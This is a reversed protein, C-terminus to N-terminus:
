SIFCKALEETKKERFMRKLAEEKEESFNTGSLSSWISGEMEDWKKKFEKETLMHLKGTPFLLGYEYGTLHFAHALLLAPLFPIFKNYKKTTNIIARNSKSYLYRLITVQALTHAGNRGEIKVKYVKIKEKENSFKPKGEAKFYRPEVPYDAGSCEVTFPFIQVVKCIVNDGTISYRNGVGRILDGISFVEKNCGENSNTKVEIEVEQLDFEIGLSKFGELWYEIDKAKFFLTLEKMEQYKIDECCGWVSTTKKRQIISQGRCHEFSSKYM